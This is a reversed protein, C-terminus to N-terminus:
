IPNRCHFHAWIGAHIAMRTQNTLRAASAATYGIERVGHAQRPSNQASTRDLPAPMNSEVFNRWMHNTGLSCTAGKVAMCSGKPFGASSVGRGFQFDEYSQTEIMMAGLSSCPLGTIPLLRAYSVDGTPAACM